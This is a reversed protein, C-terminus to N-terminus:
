VTKLGGWLWRGLCKKLFTRQMDLIDKVCYSHTCQAIARLVKSGDYKPAQRQTSINPHFMCSGLLNFNLLKFYSCYFMGFECTAYLVGHMIRSHLCSCILFSLLLEMVSANDKDFSAGQIRQAYPCADYKHKQQRSLWPTQLRRRPACLSVIPLCKHQYTLVGNVKTLVETHM